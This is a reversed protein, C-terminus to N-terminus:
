AEGGLSIVIAKKLDDYTANFKLFGNEPLQLNFSDLIYDVVARSSIRAYTKSLSLELLSSEKFEGSLAQDKNYMFIYAKKSEEDLGVRVRYAESMYNLMAKNFTIHSEYISVSGNLSESDYFKLM